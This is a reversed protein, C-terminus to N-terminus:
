YSVIVNIVIKYNIVSIYCSLFDWLLGGSAAGGGILYIQYKPCLFYVRDCVVKSWFILQLERKM